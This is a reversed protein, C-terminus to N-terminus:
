RRDTSQQKIEPIRNPYASQGKAPALDLDEELYPEMGRYVEMFVVLSVIAPKGAQMEVAPRWYLRTEHPDHLVNWPILFARRRFGFNVGLYFGAPSVALDVSKRWQVQGIKITHWLQSKEFPARRPKVAYDQALAEFRSAREFRKGLAWIGLTLAAIVLIVVVGGLTLIGMLDM